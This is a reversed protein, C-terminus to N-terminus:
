DTGGPRDLRHLRTTLPSSGVGHLGDKSNAQKGGHEQHRAGAANNLGAIAPARAVRDTRCRAGDRGAVVAHSLRGALRAVFGDALDDPLLFVVGAALRNIVPDAFRNGDRAALRNVVGAIAVLTVCDASRLILGTIAVHAAFDATGNIFRAIAAFRVDHATRHVLRMVALLATGNATGDVLCTVPFAAVGDAPRDILGATAVDAARRVARAALGTIAVAAVGGAARNALCLADADARAVPLGDLFADGARNGTAAGWRRWAAAGRSSRTPKM